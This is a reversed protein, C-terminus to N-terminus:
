IDFRLGLEIMLGHLPKWPKPKRAPLIHLTIHTRLQTLLRWMHWPTSQLLGWGVNLRRNASYDLLVPQM